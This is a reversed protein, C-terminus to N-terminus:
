TNEIIKCNAPSKFSENSSIFGVKGRLLINSTLYGINGNDHNIESVDNRKDFICNM